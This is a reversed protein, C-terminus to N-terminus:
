SPPGGASGTARNRRRKEYTRVAEIQAPTEVSGPRRRRITAIATDASMGTSVLYCALITGTRGLGAACHVLVPHDATRQADIFAIAQDVQESTPISYDQIPLHLHEIPHHDIGPPREPTLSIISSIGQVELWALAHSDCPFSSAAVEGDIIWNFNRVSVFDM